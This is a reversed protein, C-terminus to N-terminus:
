VVLSRRELLVTDHCRGRDWGISGTVAVRLGAVLNFALAVV